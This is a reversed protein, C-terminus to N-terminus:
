LVPYQIFYVCTIPTNDNIIIIVRGCFYVSTKRIRVEVIINDDEASVAM